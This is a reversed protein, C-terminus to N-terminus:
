RGRRVYHRNWNAADKKLRGKKIQQRGKNNHHRRVKVAVEQVHYGVGLSEHGM